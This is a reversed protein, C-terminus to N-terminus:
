GEDVLCPCAPGRFDPGTCALVIQHPCCRAALLISAAGVCLYGAADQTHALLCRSADLVTCLKYAHPRAMVGQVLMCAVCISMHHATHGVKCMILCSQWASPAM